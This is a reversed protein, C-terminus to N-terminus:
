TQAPDKGGGQNNGQDGSAQNGDEKEGARRDPGVDSGGGAVAVAMPNEDHHM